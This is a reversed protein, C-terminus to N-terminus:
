RYAIRLVLALPWPILPGVVILCVTRIQKPGVPEGGLRAPAGGGQAGIAEHSRPNQRCPPPAPLRIISVPKSCRLDTLAAYGSLGIGDSM